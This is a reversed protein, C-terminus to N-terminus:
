RLESSTYQSGLDTHLLLDKAPKQVSYSNELAKMALDTTMTRSFLYGVVKKSHLDLVSALYGLGDKLTHIYTTNAVWKENITTTSFDRELLTKRELVKERSSHPRYKKRTISRIEAKAMLRQVRKLSV